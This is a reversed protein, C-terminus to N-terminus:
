EGGELAKMFEVAENGLSRKYKIPNSANPDDPIDPNRVESGSGSSSEVKPPANGKKAERAEYLGNMERLIRTYTAGALWQKDADKSNGWKLVQKQVQDEQFGHPNLEKNAVVDSRDRDDSVRADKKEKEDWRQNQEDIQSQMDKTGALDKITDRQDDTYVKKPSSEKVPAPEKPATAAAYKAETDKLRDNVDKFRSYPVTQEGAPEGDLTDDEVLTPTDDPDVLESDALEGPPLEVEDRPSDDDM